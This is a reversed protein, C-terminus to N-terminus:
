KVLINALESANNTWKQPGLWPAEWLTSCNTFLKQITRSTVYEEVVPCYQRVYQLVAACRDEFATEDPSTALGDVSFLLTLLEVRATQSVGTKSLDRVNDWCHLVCYLQNSRPFAVRWAKILAAEEDSGTIIGDLIHVETAQVDTDLVGHLTM